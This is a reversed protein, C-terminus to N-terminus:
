SWLRDHSVEADWEATPAFPEPLNNAVVEGYGSIGQNTDLRLLVSNFPMGTIRAVRVDTIRLQSPKSHPTM